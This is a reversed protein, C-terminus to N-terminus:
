VLRVVASCFMTTILTEPRSSQPSLHLLEGYRGGSCLELTGRETSLATRAGAENGVQAPVVRLLSELYFSDM